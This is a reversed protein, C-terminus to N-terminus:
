VMAYIHPLGTDPDRHFCVNMELERCGSCLAITDDAARPTSGTAHPTLPAVPRTVHLEVLGLGPPPTQPRRLLPLPRLPDPHRPALLFHLSPPYKTCNLFSLATTLTDKEPTWPRPDGYAHSARLIVFLAIAALGITTLATRRKRSDLTYVGGLWYGAAIVGFWPLLPYGVFATIGAPGEIVGPRLLLRVLPQLPGSISALAPDLLNHGAIIALGIAGIIRPPIRAAVFASLLIFSGGISWLVLGLFHNPLPHFMIGLKEVTQELLIIWLGRTLLHRAQARPELGRNAALRVGVGALLAFTPACFHTLWRTLFLAPSAQSLDTPDISTDTFYDRTHDLVMLVMVLGRLLDVSDLRPSTTAPASAPDAALALAATPQDM